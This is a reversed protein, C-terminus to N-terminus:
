KRKGLLALGGLALLSVTAPEPIAWTRFMFDDNTGYYYDFVSQGRTYPNDEQAEWGLFLGEMEQESTLSCTLYLRYTHEPVLSIHPTDIELWGGVLNLPFTTSWLIYSGDGVKVTVTADSDFGRFLCLDVQELNDKTPRFEQWYEYPSVIGYGITEPYDCAQDLFLEGYSPLGCILLGVFSVGLFVCRNLNM